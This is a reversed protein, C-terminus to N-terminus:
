IDVFSKMFVARGSDTVSITISVLVLAIVISSYIIKAYTEIIVAYREKKSFRLREALLVSIIVILCLGFFFYFAYEVLLVYGVNGLQSNISSLLITASLLSSISVTIKEKVLGPPFFLCSFTITTLLFLPLLSKILNSFVNRAVVVNTIFGSVERRDNVGYRSPNGLASNTVLIDQRSEISKAHWQTLNKLARLTSNSNKSLDEIGSNISASNARINVIKLKSYLPSTKFEHDSVERDRTYIIQESAAHTNAFRISLMQKDFPYLQFDFDNKIDGQVRWLRFTTGDKLDVSESPKTVNFEGRLLDPFEIDSPDVGSFNHNKQYRLWVFFDASFKSQVPDISRIENLHIGASVVQQLRFFQGNGFDLLTGAMLDQPNPHYERVLQIPASELVRNKFIGIKIPQQRGRDKTFWIPYTLGPASNSPSDLTSLYEIIAKRHESISWKFSQRNEFTKQIAIIALRAADYGRVADSSPEEGFRNKYRHAFDLVDSNAADMIMPAAVLLGNSYYGPELGESNEIDSLQELFNSHIQTATTLVYGKFNLNKLEKLAIIADGHNMALVILSNSSNFAANRALSTLDGSSVYFETSIKIARSSQRSTLEKYLSRNYINDKAIVTARNSNLIKHSYNIIFDELDRIRFGTRFTGAYKSLDDSLTAPILSAIGAKEYIACAEFALPLMMPGIAVLANSAIAQNAATAADSTNDNDNFVNLNISQDKSTANIEEVALTAGKELGQTIPASAGSRSIILAIDSTAEARESFFLFVSTTLISMVFFLNVKLPM